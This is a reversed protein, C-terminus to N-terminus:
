RSPRLRSRPHRPPRRRPQYRRTRPQPQHRPQRQQAGTPDSGAEAIGAAKGSRRSQAPESGAPRPRAQPHPQHPAAPSTGASAGAAPRRRHRTRPLISSTSPSAARDPGSISSRAAPRFPSRSWWGAMSPRRASRRCMACNPASSLPSTPKERGPSPSRSRIARSPSPIISRGTPWNFVLRNRDPHVGARVQVVPDPQQAALLPAAGTLGTALLLAAGLVAGLRGNM